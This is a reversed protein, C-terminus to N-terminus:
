WRWPNRTKPSAAKAQPKEAGDSHARCVDDGFNNALSGQVVARGAPAVTRGHPRSPSATTVRGINSSKPFLDAPHRAGFRTGGGRHLLDHLGGLAATHRRRRDFRRVGPAAAGHDDRRREGHGAHPSVHPDRRVVLPVREAYGFVLGNYTLPVGNCTMAVDGLQVTNGGQRSAM